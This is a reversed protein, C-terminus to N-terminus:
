RQEETARTYFLALAQRMATRMEETLSVVRDEPRLLEARITTVRRFDAYRTDFPPDKEQGPLLFFRYRHGTAIMDITSQPLDHISRVLCLTFYKRRDDKEDFECEHTLLMGYDRRGTALMEGDAAPDFDNSPPLGDEPYAAYGQGGAITRGRLAVVPRARIYVNPVDKFIDGQWLEPLPTTYQRAV